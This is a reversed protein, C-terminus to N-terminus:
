RFFVEVRGLIFKEMQFDHDKPFDAGIALSAYLWKSHILQRYSIACDYSYYHLVPSLRANAGISYSMTKKDTINQNLTLSNRLIFTDTKDEWSLSNAQETQFTPNFKRSFSLQSIEQFGDQRYYIFKQAASINVYSTIVNKQIRFKAFPDLPLLIKMGLDLFTEYYPSSSLIYNLGAVYNSKTPTTEGTRANVADSNTSELIEDREKEIVIKMRKTTSPLHVKIKLDFNYEPKISEKKYISYYAM